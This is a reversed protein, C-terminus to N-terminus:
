ELSSEREKNKLSPTSRVIGRIRISLLIKLHRLVQDIVGSLFTVFNSLVFPM